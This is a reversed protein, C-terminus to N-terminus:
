KQLEVRRVEEALELLKHPHRYALIRLLSLESRLATEDDFRKVRHHKERITRPTYNLDIDSAKIDMIEEDCVSVM